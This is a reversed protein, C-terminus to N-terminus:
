KGNVRKIYFWRELKKLSRLYEQLSVDSGHVVKIAQVCGKEKAYGLDSKFFEKLGSLSLEIDSVKFKNNSLISVRGIFGDVSGQEICSPRQRSRLDEKEKKLATLEKELRNVKSASRTLAAKLKMVMEQEIVPESHGDQKGVLHDSFSFVLIVFLLVLSLETLTIPIIDDKM